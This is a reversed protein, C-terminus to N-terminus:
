RGRAAAASSRNSTDAEVVTDAEVSEVQVIKNVLWSHIGLLSQDVQYWVQEITAFAVYGGPRNALGHERLAVFEISLPDLSLVKVAPWLGAGHNFHNRAERLEELWMAPEDMDALVGEVTWRKPEALIEKCFRTVFACLLDYTSLLEVLLSDLDLAVQVGLLGHCFGEPHFDVESELPSVPVFRSCFSNQMPLM